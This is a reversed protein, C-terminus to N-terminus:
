SREIFQVIVQNVIEPHTVPGMHGLGELEVM